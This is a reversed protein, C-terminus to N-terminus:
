HYDSYTIDTNRDREIISGLTQSCLNEICLSYIVFCYSFSVYIIPLSVQLIQCVGVCVCVCYAVCLVKLTLAKGGETLCDLIALESPNIAEGSHRFPSHTRRSGQFHKTTVSNLIM